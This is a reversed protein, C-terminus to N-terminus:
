WVAEMSLLLVSEVSEQAPIRSNPDQATGRVLQTVRFLNILIIM